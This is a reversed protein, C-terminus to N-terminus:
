LRKSGHPEFLQKILFSIEGSIGLLFQAMGTFCPFSTRGFDIIKHNKAVASQYTIKGKQHFHEKMRIWCISVDNAGGDLYLRKRRYALFTLSLSSLLVDDSCLWWTAAGLCTGM